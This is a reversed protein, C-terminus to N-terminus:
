PARVEILRPGRRPAALAAALADPDAPVSAFALGCAKALLAHDLPSPDCGIVAAGAGQM